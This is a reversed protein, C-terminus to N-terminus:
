NENVVMTLSSIFESPSIGEITRFIRSFYFQDSYGVMKSVDKIYINPNSVIIKKANNIRLTTFYRNFSTNGFERFWKSLTTQSVGFHKCVSTLSMNDQINDELYSLIMEYLQQNNVVSNESKPYVTDLKELINDMIETMSVSYLFLDNLMYELNEIDISANERDKIQQLIIQLKREVVVQTDGNKTWITFLDEILTKLHSMDNNKIYIKILEFLEHEKKSFEENIISEHNLTMIKNQGITVNNYLKKYIKKAVEPFDILNFSDEAYICTVFINESIENNYKKNIFESFTQNSLLITPCLYLLEMEDRGYIHIQEEELSFVELDYANHFRSPLGNKRIIGCYYEGEVFYRDLSKKDIEKTGNCMNCILKKRKLYYNRRIKISLVNLTSLLESPKLPKLLYDCVGFKIANKAYEFDQYGSVIIFSIEPYIEHVKKALGVGDLIPMKIDSIIVDPSYKEIKALADEGNIATDIVEFDSCKREIINKIYAISAPEDDVIIVKYM